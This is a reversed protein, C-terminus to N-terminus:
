FNEVEDILKWDVSENNMDKYRKFACIQDDTEKFFGAKRWEEM